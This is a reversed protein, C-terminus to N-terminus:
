CILDYLHDGGQLISYKWFSYIVTCNVFNFGNKSPKLPTIPSLLKRSPKTSINLIHASSFNSGSYYHISTIYRGFVFRPVNINYKDQM